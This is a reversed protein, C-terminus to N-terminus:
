LLITIGVLRIDIDLHWFDLILTKTMVKYHLTPNEYSKALINVKVFLQTACEFRFHIKLTLTMSLPWGSFLGFDAKGSCLQAIM